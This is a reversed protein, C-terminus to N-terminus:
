RSSRLINMNTGQRINCKKARGASIELVYQVPYRSSISTEDFPKAGYHIHKVENHSDIFLMDLPIYTNKMWFSRLEDRSSVFLMGSDPRLNKRFMLGRSQEELTVALEVKFRCLERGTSDTFVTVAQAGSEANCSHMFPITNLFFALVLCLCVKLVMLYLPRHFEIDMKNRGGEYSDNAVDPKIGPLPWSLPLLRLFLELPL